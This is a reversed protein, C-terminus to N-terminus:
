GAGSRKFLLGSVGFLVAFFATLMFVPLVGPSWSITPPPWILLAVTPVLLQIFAALFLARSMGQPKFRSILSGAIGVLLVANYLINVSQGENGIIGVAANVWFLLFAGILAIAFAARYISQESRRAVFEYTIGIFSLVGAMVAFDFFDWNVENTLQMAILPIMLLAAIGLAWVMLRKSLLKTEM